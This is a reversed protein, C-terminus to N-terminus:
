ARIKDRLQQYSVIEDERIRFRFHLSKSKHVFLEIRDDETILAAAEKFDKLNRIEFVM